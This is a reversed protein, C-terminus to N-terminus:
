VVKTTINAAMIPRICGGRCNCSPALHGPIYIDFDVM